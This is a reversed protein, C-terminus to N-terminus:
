ELDGHKPPLTQPFEVPRRRGRFFARMWVRWNPLDRREIPVFEMTPLGMGGVHAHLVWHPRSRSPQLRVWPHVHRPHGIAAWRKYRHRYEAWAYAQCNSVYIQLM